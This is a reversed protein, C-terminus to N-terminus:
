SRLIGVAASFLVMSNLFGVVADTIKERTTLQVKDDGVSLMYIVVGILLSIGFPVWPTDASMGVLKKAAGWVMTVAATGGSVTVLSAPTIFSPVAQAHPVPAAVSRVPPAVPM